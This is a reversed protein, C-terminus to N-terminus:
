NTKGSRALRGDFRRFLVDFEPSIELDDALKVSNVSYFGIPVFSCGALHSLMAPMSSMGEYIEVAPIESQIGIIRSLVGTAGKLVCMDHGQTDIKLFIRPSEIGEILQPLVSDLRRLQIQTQSWQASDVSYTQGADERLTLLSNFDGRCHTNM